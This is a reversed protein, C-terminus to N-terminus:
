LAQFLNWWALRMQLTDLCVRYYLPLISLNVAMAQNSSQFIFDFTNSDCSLSVRCMTLFGLLSNM